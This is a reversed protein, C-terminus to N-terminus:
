RKAFAGPVYVWLNHELDIAEMEIKQAANLADADSLYENLSLSKVNSEKIIRSSFYRNFFLDDYTKIDAPFGLNPLPIQALEKRGNPMYIWFLPSEPARKDAKKSRVIPALGLMVTYTIQHSSTYYRMEKTRFGVLEVDLSDMTKKLDDSTIRNKFKDNTASYARIKGELVSQILSNFFNNNEFLAPNQKRNSVMRWHIVSHIIEKEKPSAFNVLGNTDRVLNVQKEYSVTKNSESKHLLITYDYANNEYHRQHVIEGTSDWITWKGMRMNHQFQGEAKKTGNAYFSTYAGNMQGNEMSYLCRVDNVYGVKEEKQANVLIPLWLFALISLPYRMSTIKVM